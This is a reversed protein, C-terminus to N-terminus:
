GLRKVAIKAATAVADKGDSLELLIQSRLDRYGGSGRFAAKMLSEASSLGPASSARWDFKALRKGLDTLFRFVETNKLSKLAETVVTLDVSTINSGEGWAGLQLKDASLLTLDNVVSLFARIGQDQAILTHSGFFAADDKAAVLDREKVARLAKQWQEHGSKVADQFCEGAAILFAAQEHRSWPLVQEDSGVPAGFLGGISVRKGGWSKVFTALLSRVWAAQSVM